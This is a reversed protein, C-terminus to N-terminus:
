IITLSGSFIRARHRVPLSGGYGYLLAEAAGILVPPGTPVPVDGVIELVDAPGREKVLVEVVYMLEVAAGNGKLLAETVANGVPEAIEKEEPVAPVGDKDLEAGRAGEDENELKETPVAPGDPALLPDPPGNLKEEVAVGSYGLEVVPLAVRALAVEGGDPAGNELPNRLEDAVLPALPANELAADLLVAIIERVLVCGVLAVVADVPKLPVPPAIPKEPADEAGKALEVVAPGIAVPVPLPIPVPVPEEAKVKALLLLKLELEGAVLLAPASDAVM